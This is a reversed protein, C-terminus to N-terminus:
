KEFLVMSKVVRGSPQVDFLLLISQSGAKSQLFIDVSGWVVAEVDSGQRLWTRLFYNWLDFHPEIGMYAECLTMFAAIHMIRLPTLHHLELGYFQLLLYLFRHSPVGFGREYFTACSVVYGGAPAPSAPNEPVRCTALEVVIMYGESILNQLHEQMVESTPWGSEAM